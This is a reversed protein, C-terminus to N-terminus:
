QKKVDISHMTEMFPWSCEVRWYRSSGVGVRVLSLKGSEPNHGGFHRMALPEPHTRQLKICDGVSQNFKQVGEATLVQGFSILKPNPFGSEFNRSVHLIIAPKSIPYNNTGNCWSIPGSLIQPNRGKFLSTFPCPIITFCSVNAIRNRHHKTKRTNKANSTWAVGFVLLTDWELTTEVCRQFVGRFRQWCAM